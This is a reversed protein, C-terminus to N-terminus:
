MSVSFVRLVYYTNITNSQSDFLEDDKRDAEPAIIRKIYSVRQTLSRKDGDIDRNSRKM